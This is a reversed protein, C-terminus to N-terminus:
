PQPAAPLEGAFEREVPGRLIAPGQRPVRVSLDGGPPSVAVTEDDTRGTRRAAVAIAVAGTGCADTEGEVGREFTRQDFGDGDGSEAAVNVNAGEPFVDAHRIPAAFADLNVEDVDEVFAVAHPVGTTLATVEVGEVTEEVLPEDGALPVDEPDFSPLGMEVAVEDGRVEARRTGAPTHIVVEDAGTRDAVWRAVCRAGNGCMAATGGDPQYLRMEVEPPTPADDLDLVLVGDAGTTRDPDDAGAGTERDCHARAFAAWDPVDEDADVIVFDNGTGHYKDYSIM